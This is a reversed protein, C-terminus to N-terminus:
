QSTWFESVFMDVYLAVQFGVFADVNIDVVDAKSNFHIPWRVVEAVCALALIRELVAPCIALNPWKADGVFQQPPEQTIVYIESRKFLFVEALCLKLQLVQDTLMLSSPLM